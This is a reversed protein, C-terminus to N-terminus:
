YRYTFLLERVSSNQICCIQQLNAAFRSCVLKNTPFFFNHKCTNAALQLRETLMVAKQLMMHRCSSQLFGHKMKWCYSINARPKCSVSFWESINVPFKQVIFITQLFSASIKFLCIQLKILWKLATNCGSKFYRGSNFYNIWYHNLIFKLSLKVHCGSIFYHGSNFCSAWPGCREGSFVTWIM